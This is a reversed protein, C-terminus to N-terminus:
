VSLNHSNIAIMKFHEAVECGWGVSFMQTTVGKVKFHKDVEQQEESDVGTTTVGKVKFHKDVLIDEASRYKYIAVGKVKFHKEVMGKTFSQIDNYKMDFKAEFVSWIKERNFWFYTNELDQELDFRYSSIIKQQNLGYLNYIEFLCIDNKFGFLSNKYRKVDCKWEFTDIFELFLKEKEDM